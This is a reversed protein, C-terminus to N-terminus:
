LKTGPPIGGVPALLGVEKGELLAWTGEIFRMVQTSPLHFLTGVVGATARALPRDLEGQAAQKIAKAVESFFRTGAPGTYDGPGTLAASMERVGVFLGLLYAVQENALRKMLKELDWDGGQIANKILVTMAAPAVVVTLYAAALQPKGRAHAEAMLNLTTNFYSYFTTFLKLLPGGRQVGALDKIMGSGQSDIVAQDALAIAEAEDKGEALMAEYQGRWTPVDVVTQMSHIFFFFSREVRGLAEGSVRNLIEDLERSQTLSRNRMFESKERIEEVSKQIRGVDGLTYGMGKLLNGWGIRQASQLFGLPQLLGTTVNWGLGAVVAGQRLHAMSREFFNTSPIQGIAIDRLTKKLAEGVAPGYHTRIANSVSENKLLRNADVLFEHWALDHVVQNVHRSLVNIFDYRLPRGTSEVRAQEHGRRTQTRVYLGHEIQRQVAAADDAGARDSREPDYAIPYYGGEVIGHGPIEFAQAEVWTPEVGSVRKAKEAILPRFTDLLDWVKQLVASDEARLHRLVAQLQMPTWKEGTLVRERNTTNGMNLAIGILEERTFSQQVEAVWVKENLGKTAAFVESLKDNYANRLSVEYNGADNMPRSFTKWMFGGEEFGDFERMYSSFKRHESGAWAAMKQIRMALGREGARTERVTGKANGKITAVAEEVVAKFEREDKAKLLKHKLRGLHEINKVADVLDRFEELTMRQYPKRAAENKLQQSIEPEFGLARQSEIWENLSEMRALHPQTQPTLSYRELLADIQAVYAQDITESKLARLMYARGKEVETQADDAYKAAYSSLLQNRKAAAANIVDGAKLFELSQKAAKAESAQYQSPRLGGVTSRAVLTKAAERAAKQILRVPGVARSLARLETAVFRQRVENHVAREAEREMAAPSEINGYKEIMRRDTLAERMVHLPEAELMSRVLHDGSTFGFAGAIERPDLGGEATVLSHKGTPFYRWPAAPHDSYMEKMAALSLKHGNEGLGALELARREGQNTGRVELEGERFFEMARYVGEAMLEQEVEDAIAKRKAKVDKHIGVWARSKANRTWAMDQMSANDLKNVAEDTAAIGLRQYDAWEQPTLGSEQATAFLPAMKNLTMSEQIAMDTALMRGFVGRVEDTLEVDLDNLKAYVNQMWRRFRSFLDRQEVSPAKGEFLYSEFGRAFKEHHPRKEELGMARWTDLDKVGFWDLTRQVDAIIDAPANPKSAIDTLIELFLHGSEHVFTSFDADKLLAIISPGNGIGGKAFTINGREPAAYPDQGFRRVIEEGARIGKDLGQAVALLIPEESAAGDYATWEPMIGVKQEAFVTDAASAQRNKEGHPGWNVWSNQGRTESTMAMRALPSYMASHSRWANEEGEARFGNGDKIHGFYDHVVRFLDNALAKQGSIEHKTTALLPNDAVNLEVGGGEGTQLATVDGLGDRTSFVWLHNNDRVDKIALRPNGAYPDGQKAFDIFEVKLGTKLIAEYQAETEKIMADYAAKVAPDNPAHAMKEYEAAVRAARDKDLKAYTHPPNYDLGAARMYERAANHAVGFPGPVYWTGDPMMMPNVPLGALAVADGAARLAEEQAQVVGPDGRGSANGVPTFGSQAFRQADWGYKDAFHANVTAVRARLDAARGLLDPGGRRLIELYSEGDPHEQWNNGISNGDSRYTGTEVIGGGLNSPLVEIVRQMGRQFDENKLGPIFNLVRVGNPTYGPAADWTGFMLNMRDYVLRMEAETLARATRIEVANSAKKSSDYVPKHWVVSDQSLIYGRMAIYLDLRSKAVDKVTRKAGQGESPVPTFQQVGAGIDGEWASFGQVSIGQALGVAQAVLDVGNETLAAQVAQLYEAKEATSAKHIGPLVNSRVGPTAEWSIQASIAHLTDAYDQKATNVAADTIQQAMGFAHAFRYHDYKKEKLVAGETDLWGKKKEAAKLEDRYPDIRARMATWIAAQVQHANWGLEDGLLAIEREMFGYREGQGIKNYGYDFAISMWMDMTSNDKNLVSPDIEVMLNQYFSNVKTSEVIEGRDMLAQAKVDNKTFGASIPVGAKHQYYATLAMATNAAVTANPSYIAILAALKQAEIKDGGVMNLIARSSNEYWFRGAAGEIALQKLKARLQEMGEAPDTENVWEPAGVIAGPRAGGKTIRHEAAFQKRKSAQAFRTFDLSREDVQSKLWQELDLDEKERGSPGMLRQLEDFSVLQGDDLVYTLKRPDLREDVMVEAARGSASQAEAPVLYGVGEGYLPFGEPDIPAASIGPRGEADKGIVLHGTRAITALERASAGRFATGPAIRGSQLHTLLAAKTADKRAQLQAQSFTALDPADAQIEVAYQRFLVDPTVGVRHATTVFFDTMLSAYASNVDKSFRNAQRLQATIADKVLNAGERFPTNAEYKALEEQAAQAFVQEQNQLIAEAEPLTLGDESTKAYQALGPAQNAVHAVYEGVPIQVDGGLAMAKAAAERTEPALQDLRVQGKQVAQAFQPGDVYLHTLKSGSQEATRQLHEAFMAPDRENLKLGAAATLVENALEADQVTNEAKRFMLATSNVASFFGSAVLSGLATQYLEGPLQDFMQAWTKDPNAIATDTIEQAVTTALEGGMDRALFNVAFEGLKTKGLHKSLYGMPLFEFAAEAGGYLIEGMLADTISGGRARIEHYEGVGAQLGGISVGLVPMGALSLAITPVTAALSQVGGYLGQLTANEFDPTDGIQRALSRMREYRAGEALEQNGTIDGIQGIIGLNTQHLSEFFTTRVGQKMAELSWFAEDLSGWKLKEQKPPDVQEGRDRMFQLKYKNALALNQAREAAVNRREREEITSRVRGMKMEVDALQPIEDHATAAFHPNTAVSQKLSPAGELLQAYTISAAAQKRTPDSKVAGRTIGLQSAVRGSEAYEDPNNAVGARLNTRVSAREQEALISDAIEDPTDGAADDALSEIDLDEDFNM